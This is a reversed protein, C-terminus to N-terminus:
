CVSKVLETRIDLLLTKIFGFVSLQTTIWTSVKVNVKIILLFSYSNAM